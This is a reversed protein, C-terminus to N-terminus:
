AAVFHPVRSATAHARLHEIRRWRLEPDAISDLIFRDLDTDAALRDRVLALAQEQDLAPHARGEAQVAALGIPAGARLLCGHDSLYMMLHHGDAPPGAEPAVPVGELRGFAYHGETEHMRELQVTDLWTVAVRVRCGPAHQLTSAIAGYTTVHASYVVDYGDLWAYTVPIEADPGEFHAFKRALQSPSRNSGHGLVATRRAFDAEEIPRVEDHRYLFSRAPAHYPYGKAIALREAPDDPLAWPVRHTRPDRGSAPDQPMPEPTPVLAATGPHRLCGTRVSPGAAM